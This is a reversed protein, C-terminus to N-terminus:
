LILINADNLHVETEMVQTTRTRIRTMWIYCKSVTFLREGLVETEGTLVMGCNGWVSITYLSLAQSRWSVACVSMLIYASDCIIIDFNACKKCKYIQRTPLTLSFIQTLLVASQFNFAATWNGFANSIAKGRGSCRKNMFLRDATKQM